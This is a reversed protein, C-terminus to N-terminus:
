KGLGKRSIGFAYIPRMYSSEGLMLDLMVANILGHDGALAEALGSAYVENLPEPGETAFRYDGKDQYWLTIQFGEINETDEPKTQNYVAKGKEPYAWFGKELIADAKRIESPLREESPDSSYIEKYTGDPSSFVLSKDLTVVVNHAGSIEIRNGKTKITYSWPKKEASSAALSITDGSVSANYQAFEKEGGLTRQYSTGGVIQGSGDTLLRFIYTDFGYAEMYGPGTHKYVILINENQKKIEPLNAGAEPHPGPTGIAKQTVDTKTSTKSAGDELPKEVVKTQKCSIVMFVMAMMSILLLASSFRFSRKM